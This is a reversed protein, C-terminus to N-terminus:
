CVIACMFVLVIVFFFYIVFTIFIVSLTLLVDVCFFVGGFVLGVLIDAMWLM